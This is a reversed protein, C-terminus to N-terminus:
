DFAVPIPIEIVRENSQTYFVKESGYLPPCMNAALPSQFGKM